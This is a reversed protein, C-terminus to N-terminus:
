LELGPVVYGTINSMHTGQDALSFKKKKKSDDDAGHEQAYLDAIGLLCDDCRCVDSTASNVSGMSSNSDASDTRLFPRGPHGLAVQEMKAVLLTEMLSKPRTPHVPIPPPTASRFHSTM